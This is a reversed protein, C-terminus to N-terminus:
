VAALVLGVADWGSAVFPRAEDGFAARTKVSLDALSPDDPASGMALWASNAAEGAQDLLPAAWAQNGLLLVLLGRGRVARAAAADQSVSGCVFVAEAGSAAIRDLAATFDAGDAPIEVSAAIVKGAKGLAAEFSRAQIASMPDSPDFLTAYRGLTFREAAYSALASAIQQASPRVLFTFRRVAGPADLASARLDPMTARDDIGLSLFPVKMLEAVPSVAIGGNAVAAGIVACVGEQQALATFSKVAEAPSQKSDLPLLEVVRGGIGGTSNAEAVRLEAGRLADIGDVDATSSLDAYVGIRIPGTERVASPSVCTALLSAACLLPACRRRIM